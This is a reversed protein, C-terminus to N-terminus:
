YLLTPPPPPGGLCGFLVRVRTATGATIANCATGNLVVTQTGSLSWGNTPDKALLNTDLYVAINNPDPPTQAMVFTCTTVTKSISAFADALAQPSTAPFYNTTGGAVAFSQLNTLAAQPGIGIVYVTFGANKAATIADVTAQVNPTSDSGQACNPEGDTALLIYKTSQDQVTKLYATSATIAQATPTNGGPTTAAVKAEIASVSTTSIAVEVTTKDLGCSSGTSSFLKLGWNISGSTSGLTATVASTLAPWRMTCNSTNSCVQGGRGATAADCYCDEATSYAMSGSRDLVLLVDAPERSGNTQSGCNADGTPAAGTSNSGASGGQNQGSLSGDLKVTVSGAGGGPAGGAGVPPPDSNCGAFFLGISSFIATGAVITGIVLKKM